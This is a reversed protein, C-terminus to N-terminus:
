KENKIKLFDINLLRLEEDPCGETKKIFAQILDLLSKQFEEALQNSIIMPATYMLESENLNSAKDMAFMRWNKHHQGILPSDKSLHSHTIGLKLENKEKIVIQTELLFNLIKNAEELEVRFLETLDQANKVLPLASALQFAAYKWSSYFTLQDELSLQQTNKVRAAIKKSQERVQLLQKKHYNVLKFHGAKEIALLHMFYQTQLPTFGFFESLLMGQEFSLHKDAKFVQSVYVNTVNLHEAIRSYIGREQLQPICFNILDKFSDAEFFYM